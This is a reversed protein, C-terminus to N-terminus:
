AAPAPPRTSDSVLGTLPDPRSVRFLVNAFPTGDSMPRVEARLGHRAFCALWEDITRFYERQRWDGFALAKLRNGFRVAAFRWGAAADAERVLMVGGPELAAAAAAIM